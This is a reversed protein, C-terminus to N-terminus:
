KIRVMVFCFLKIPEVKLLIFPQCINIISMSLSRMFLVVFVEIQAERTTWHNLIHRSFSPLHTQDRTHCSGVHQPAALGM